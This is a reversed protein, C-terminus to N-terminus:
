RRAASRAPAARGPTGSVPPPDPPMLRRALWSGHRLAQLERLNAHVLSAGREAELGRLFLTRALLPGVFVAMLWAAAVKLILALGAFPRSSRQRAGARPRLGLMQMLAATAGAVTLAVWGFLTTCSVGGQTTGFVSRYGTYGLAALMLAAFVLVLVLATLEGWLLSSLFAPTAGALVALAPLWLLQARSSPPPTM